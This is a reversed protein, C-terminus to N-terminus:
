MRQLGWVNLTGGVSLLTSGDSGFAIAEVKSGRDGLVAVRRGSDAHFVEITGDVGATAFAGAGEHFALSHLNDFHGTVLEQRLGGSPLSYRHVVLEPMGHHSGDYRRRGGAFVEGAKGFSIARPIIKEAAFTTVVNLSTAELVVVNQKWDVYAIHKGDSSAAINTSLATEVVREHLRKGTSPEVLVLSFQKKRNPIYVSEVYVILKDSSPLFALGRVVGKFQSESPGFPSEIDVLPVGDTASWVRAALNGDKEFSGSAVMKGISDCAIARSLGTRQFRRREAGTPVELLVVDSKGGSSVLVLNTGGCPSIDTVFLGAVSLKKQLDAIGAVKWREEQLRDFYKIFGKMERPGSDFMVLPLVMLVAIAGLAWGVSARIKFRRTAGVARKEEDKRALQRYRRSLVYDRMTLFFGFVLFAGGLTVVWRENSGLYIEFQRLVAPSYALLFGALLLWKGRSKLHDGSKPASVLGSIAGVALPLVIFIAVVLLSM